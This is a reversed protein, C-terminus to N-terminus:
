GAIIRLNAFEGPSNNGVWFGLKKGKATKIPQVVLTPKPDNNIFVTINSATVVIRVHFWDNPDPPPNATNEYKGPFQSRLIDWDYQPLSIYQVSHNKRDPSKFNFPRFYVAEHTSDNLGHFAVGVFSKQLEDSGKVDFEITGTTFDVDPIWAIGLFPKGNLHLGKKQPVGNLATADRNFVIIKRAALLAPLDPETAEKQASCYTTLSSLILIFLLCVNSKRKM